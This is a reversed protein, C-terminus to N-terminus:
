FSLFDVPQHNLRPSVLVKSTWFVFVWRWQCTTDVIPLLWGSTLANSLMYQWQEAWLLTAVSILYISSLAFVIRSWCLLTWIFDPSASQPRKERKQLQVILHIVDLLTNKQDYLSSTVDALNSRFPFFLFKELSFPSAFWYCSKFIRLFWHISCKYLALWM